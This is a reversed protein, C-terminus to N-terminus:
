PYKVPTRKILEHAIDIMVRHAGCGRCMALKNYDHKEKCDTYLDHCKECIYPREFDM